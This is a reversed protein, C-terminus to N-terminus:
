PDSPVEIGLGWGDRQAVSRGQDDVNGLSYAVVSVVFRGRGLMGLDVWLVGDSVAQPPISRYTSYGAEDVGAISAAPGVDGYTPWALVYRGAAVTIPTLAVWDQGQIRDPFTASLAARPTAVIPQCTIATAILCLGWGDTGRNTYATELEPSVEFSVAPLTTGDGPTPYAAPTADSGAPMRGGVGLGILFAIAAVGLGLGLTRFPRDSGDISVRQLRRAPDDM